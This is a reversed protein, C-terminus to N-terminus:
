LNELIAGIGSVVMAGGLWFAIWDETAIKEREQHNHLMMFFVPVCLLPGIFFTSVILTTFIFTFFGM